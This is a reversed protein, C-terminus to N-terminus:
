NRKRPSGKKLRSFRRFGSCPMVELVNKRILDDLILNLGLNDSAIHGAIIVNIHYKEAEKRHKDTLHMCVATGVGAQAFKEFVKESGETGGTMDVFVRGARKRGSGVLIKPGANNRVAERYEPITKLSKVIDDLTDPKERDFKKQLYSTVSNDAPTHVCIFPIDLLRAADVARTHNLPLVGREVEKIRDELIGEAINIPVGYKALIDAQMNMVGYFGALARGEPHHAFVMDVKKGSNSLTHALIIEGIEMDVGVLMRKVERDREGYLLRTDAYPNSLKEREYYERGAKKLSEFSKKERELQKKVAKVGRPDLEMGRKVLFDYIEGLKM